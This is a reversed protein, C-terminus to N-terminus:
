FRSQFFSGHEVEEVTPIKLDGPGRTTARYTHIYTHLDAIEYIPYM